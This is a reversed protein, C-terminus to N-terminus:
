LNLLINTEILNNLLREGLPHFILLSINHKM